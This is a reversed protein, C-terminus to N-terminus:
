KLSRMRASIHSRLNRALQPRIFSVVFLLGQQIVHPVFRMRLVHISTTRRDYTPPKMDFNM